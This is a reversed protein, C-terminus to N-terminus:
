CQPTIRLSVVTARRRVAAQEGAVDVSVLLPLIEDFAAQAGLPLTAFTEETRKGIAGEVGGLEVYAAWNM